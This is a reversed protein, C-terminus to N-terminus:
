NHCTVSHSMSVGYYGRRPRELQGDDAMRSLLKRSAEKSIKLSFAVQAANMEGGNAILELAKQKQPSDWIPLIHGAQDHCTVDMDWRMTDCDLVLPLKEEEVDRGTIELLAKGEHRTKHLMMITDAAGGLGTTGNLNDIIDERKARTTHHVLVIAIEREDAITKWDCVAKYDDGYVDRSRQASRVKSFTDIVVLKCEPHESLWASLYKDGGEGIRPWALEYFFEPPCEGIQLMEIRSRLRRKNDELALYLSEARQPTQFKGLVKGGSAVALAMQLVLWSKGLKPKSALITLGTPLFDPIVWKQPQIEETLLEAARKPVPPKRNQSDKAISM